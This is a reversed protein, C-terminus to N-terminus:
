DRQAGVVSASAAKNTATEHWLGDSTARASFSPASKATKAGTNSFFATGPVCACPRAAKAFRTFRLDGHESQAADREFVGLGAEFGSRSAHGPNAQELLISDAFYNLRQTHESGHDM